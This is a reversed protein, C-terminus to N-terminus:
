KALEKKIESLTLRKSNQLKRIQKAITVCDKTYLQYGGKTYEVVNLLGERTWHRITPVTENTLRALQGIKLIGRTKLVKEQEKGDLADLYIDLSDSVAKFMFIYYDTMSGGLQAKEINTIYDKRNEKRIIAPPYGAEMLLLNMLLRATRGNGDVFPHISVLKFHADVAKSVSHGTGQHLWAIFESMLNPVKNPNPMVVMSGAIRVPVTRYKGANANDIKQLILQHLDLITNETIEYGHTHTKQVIWDFAQAHNVAELHEQLSKGEVAMGKEIVLATEARSLTNGELANSTYTLEVKFWNHLNTILDTSLPQFSDLRHKKAELEVLINKM